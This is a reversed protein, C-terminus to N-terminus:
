TAEQAAHQENMWRLLDLERRVKERTIGPPPALDLIPTGGTRLATGQYAAPLYGSQWVAAGNMPGGRPDHLVIYGPVNQNATGLGYVVWAGVSPNGQFVSGTNIHMTSAGHSNSDVKVGYAFALDDVCPGFQEFMKNVYRGSQGFPAFEFPSPLVQNEAKLLAEIQGSVGPLLPMRKGGMKQLTPKYDFTDVQSVGGSMYMLICSKAKAPFHPPKPALPNQASAEAAMGLEPAMAALALSGIGNWCQALWQRRSSNRDSMYSSM